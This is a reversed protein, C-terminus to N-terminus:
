TPTVEDTVESVHQVNVLVTAAATEVYRFTVEDSAWDSVRDRGAPLYAHVIGVIRQANSLLLSVAHPRAVEYGPVRRAEDEALTILVVHALNYLVIRAIGADMREFPFFAAASNVLDGVLEFGDACDGLFFSGRVVHGNSLLLTAAVRRKEVAYESPAVPVPTPMAPRDAATM